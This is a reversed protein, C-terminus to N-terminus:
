AQKRSISRFLLIIINKQERRTLGNYLPILITNDRAQESAPLHWKQERYPPEQHANMIGRRTAIGATLMYQMIAKQKGAAKGTLRVPCSQWNTKAFEPESLLQFDPDGALLERYYGALVRRAAVMAPLKKLQEIGMAAQIDTLRFNFGNIIYDEFIVTNAEHRVRDPVSMGHQRLLRFKRDYRNNRTTIMGGDGTTLIKRPHFSFCAIDGYPRGIKQFSGNISIESGAACAADEVVPLNYKKAIKVIETINCPLGMQHVPMIAAIRGLRAKPGSTRKYSYLPSDGAQLSAVRRYYWSGDKELCENQLLRSLALPDMNFTEPEIDVFVPEAGCHRIANATAIFSHSVTIVVDGPRVGVALLAMHLATTCSSVACAYRTGVYQAFAEEFLKVRPGQTIWGSRITKAVAAIEKKDLYPKSIPIM